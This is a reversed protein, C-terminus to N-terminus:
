TLDKAKVEKAMKLTLFLLIALAAIIALWTFIRYDKRAAPTQDVFDDNVVVERHTIQPLAQSKISDAFYKLDYHPAPAKDDGALLAYNEGATLYAVIYDSLQYARIQKIHLPQDDNNIIELNLEKLRMRLVLNLNPNGSSLELDIKAGSSGPIYFQVTRKFYAPGEADIYLKNVLYHDNFLAHLYTIHNSSDKQTLEPVPIAVYKEIPSSEQLEGIGLINVAAKNKDNVVIKLYHYNIAPFSVAQLFTNDSSNVGANDLVINEQIAFWHQQDDSGLLNVTRRVATNKLRVWIQDISGKTNGVTFVTGTDKVSAATSVPFGAFGSSGLAPMEGAKIYPLYTGKTDVLRIDDFGADCKALLRPQLEIKYFGTKAVAPVAAKYRFSQQADAHIGIALTTLGLCLKIQLKTKM